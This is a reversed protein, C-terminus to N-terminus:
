SQADDIKMKNFYHTGFSAVVGGLTSYVISQIPQSLALAASVTTSISQLLNKQNSDIVEEQDMKEFIHYSLTGVMLPLVSSLSIASGFVALGFGCVAAAKIGLLVNAPVQEDVTNVSAEVEVHQTVLASALAGTFFSFPLGKIGLNFTNKLIEKSSFAAASLVIYKRCEYANQAFGMLAGKLPEANYKIVEVSRDKLPERCDPCTPSSGKIWQELCTSHYVHDVGVTAERGATAKHGKLPTNNYSDLCVSCEWDSHDAKFDQYEKGIYEKVQM